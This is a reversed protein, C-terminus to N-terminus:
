GETRLLLLTISGDDNEMVRQHRLAIWTGNSARVWWQESDDSRVVRGYEGPAYTAKELLANEDRREADRERMAWIM